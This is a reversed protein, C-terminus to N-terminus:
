AAPGTFAPPDSRPAPSARRRIGGQELANLHKKLRRGDFVLWGTLAILVLAVVGYSAWIFMATPGLDM